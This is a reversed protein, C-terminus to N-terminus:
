GVKYMVLRRRFNFPLYSLLYLTQWFLIPSIKKLLSAQPIQWSIRSSARRVFASNEVTWERNDVRTSRLFSKTVFPPTALIKWMDITLELRGLRALSCFRESTCARLGSHSRIGAALRTLPRLRWCIKTPMALPVIREFCKFRGPATFPIRSICKSLRM